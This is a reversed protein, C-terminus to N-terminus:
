PHLLKHASVLLSKLRDILQMVGQAQHISIPNRNSKLIAVAAKEEVELWDKFRPNNAFVQAILELEQTPTM